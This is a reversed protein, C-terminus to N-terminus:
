DNKLKEKLEKLEKELASIRSESSTEYTDDIKKVYSPWWDDNTFDRISIIIKNKKIEADTLKDPLEINFAKLKEAAMLATITSNSPCLSLSRYKVWVGLPLFDLVKIQTKTLPM